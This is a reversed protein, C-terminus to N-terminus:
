EVVVKYREYHQVHRCAPCYDWESFYFPKKTPPQQHSRREMPKSCKPCANSGLTKLPRAM